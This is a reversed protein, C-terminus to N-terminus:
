GRNEAKRLESVSNHQEAKCVGKLPLVIGAARLNCDHLAFFGFHAGAVQVRRVFYTVVIERVLQQTLLSKKQRPCGRNLEGIASIRGRWNKQEKRLLLLQPRVPECFLLHAASQLRRCAFDQGAVLALM